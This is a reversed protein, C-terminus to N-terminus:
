KLFIHVLGRCDNLETIRLEMLIVFFFTGRSNSPYCYYLLGCNSINQCGLTTNMPHSARFSLEKVNVLFIAKGIENTMQM